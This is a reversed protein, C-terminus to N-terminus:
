SARGLHQAHEGLEFAAQDPLADHGAQRPGTLLPGLAASRPPPRPDALCTDLGQVHLYLDVGAAHIENLFAILDQLSRGLRDVSWAMV